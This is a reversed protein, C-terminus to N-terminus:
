PHASRHMVVQRTASFSSNEYYGVLEPSCFLTIVPIARLEDALRRILAQGIGSGRCGPAVIVDEIYARLVGDTVARAFGILQEGQWAGVAPCTRLVAGVQDATREPWWAAERYLALM